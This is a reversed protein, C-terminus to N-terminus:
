GTCVSSSFTVASAEVRFLAVSSIITRPAKEPTTTTVKIGGRPYILITHISFAAILALMEASFWCVGLAKALSLHTTTNIDGLFYLYM